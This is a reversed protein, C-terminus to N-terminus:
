RQLGLLVPVKTELLRVLEPQMYEFDDPINAVLVRKGNLNKRFKKNVKNRHQKEMVV